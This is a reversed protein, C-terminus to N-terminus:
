DVKIENSKQFHCEKCFMSDIKKEEVAKLVTNQAM